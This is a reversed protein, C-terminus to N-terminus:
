DCKDKIKLVKKALYITIEGMEFINLNRIIENIQNRMSEQSNGNTSNRKVVDLIDNIYDDINLFLIEVKDVGTLKEITTHLNEEIKAFLHEVLTNRPQTTNKIILDIEELGKKITLNWDNNTEYFPNLIEAIISNMLNELKNEEYEVRKGNSLTIERM